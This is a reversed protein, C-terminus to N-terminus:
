AKVIDITHTGDFSLKCRVDIREKPLLTGLREPWEVCVITQSDQIVEFLGVMNAEKKDIFRYLDFHYLRRNDSPIDYHRVIIFTPSLLRKSIGMGRALGQVFTTKGSGLDGWLCVLRSYNDWNKLFYVGLQEGVAQTEETSKTVTHFPFVM